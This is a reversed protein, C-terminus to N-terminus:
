VVPMTFLFESGVGPQSEVWIRGGHHDVIKRCNALGFGTGPIKRGHLREGIGFIRELYQSEIGIGNDRVSVLWHEGENRAGVHIAPPQDSRFKIANQILNQFLLILESTLRADWVWWTGRPRCAPATKTWRPGCTEALRAWCRLVISRLM